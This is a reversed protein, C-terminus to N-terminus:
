AWTTSSRVTFWRYRIPPLGELGPPGPSGTGAAAAVVGIRSGVYRATVSLPTTTNTSFLLM